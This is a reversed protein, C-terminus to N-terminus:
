LARRGTIIDFSLSIGWISRVSTSWPLSSHMLRWRTHHYAYPNWEVGAKPPRPFHRKASKSFMPLRHQLLRAWKRRRRVLFPDRSPRCVRCMTSLLYGNKVSPSVGISERHPISLHASSPSHNKNYSLRIKSVFVVDSSKFCSSNLGSFIGYLWVQSGFYEFTQFMKCFSDTPGELGVQNKCFFRRNKTTKSKLFFQLLIWIFVPYTVDIVSCSWWPYTRHYSM